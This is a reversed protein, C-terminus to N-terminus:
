VEVRMRGDVASSVKGRRALIFPNVEVEAIQPFVRRSPAFPIGYAQLIAETTAAPLWESRVSALLKGAKAQQVRLSKVAESQRALWRSRRGMRHLTIAADEPYRFM